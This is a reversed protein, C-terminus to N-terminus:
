ISPTLGKPLGTTSPRLSLGAEAQKGQHRRLRALSTSARLEWSKAQQKRAVALAREFHVEAKASDNRPGMLLIEGAVRHVEAECWRECSTEGMAIAEGCRLAEDFQGVKAHARAL